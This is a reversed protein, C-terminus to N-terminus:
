KKDKPPQNELQELRTKIDELSNELLAAERRLMEAEDKASYPVWPGVGRIDRAMGWGRGRSFGFGYGSRSYGGRFGGFRGSMPGM